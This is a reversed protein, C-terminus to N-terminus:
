NMVNFPIMDKIWSPYETDILDISQEVKFCDRGNINENRIVKYHIRGRVEWAYGKSLFTGESDSFLPYFHLDKRWSLGEMLSLMWPEIPKLNELVDQSFPIPPYLIGDKLKGYIYLYVKGM